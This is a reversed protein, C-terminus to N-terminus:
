DAEATQYIQDWFAMRKEEFNKKLTLQTDIDLYYREASTAPRWLTQYTPNGTKAFNTWMNVMRHLTVVEPSKENLNKKDFAKCDFLYCLEDSHGAGKITSTAGSMYSYNIKGDFSFQYYFVPATSHSIMEVVNKYVGRVYRTDSVLDCYQPVTSSSVDQSGFYFHKIRAAIERSKTSGKALGLDCPVFNEMNANVTKWNGASKNMAQASMKAEASGSGIVTPVHLFKGTKMLKIPEDPLFAVGSAVGKEVTPVFPYKEDPKGQRQNNALEAASVGRLFDAVLQSSNAGKYGLYKALSLARQTPSTMYAWPNFASGSEDIARQFLGKSLPSMLLYHVSAGGASQGFVTVKAPDGGFEAINQQVWKLAQQQDRLGNNATVDSGELSLFGLVGLRYNITVLVVEAHVLFEPGYTSSSSSGGTFGGGHIWVMVPLKPNKGSVPLQPTYVNLFLCDESGRNDAQKCMAGETLAARVGSWSAPAEPAKFRLKGLPPKAYPVGKFGYFKAKTFTGVEEEGKLTGQSVKVTVYESAQLVVFIHFAVLLFSLSRM